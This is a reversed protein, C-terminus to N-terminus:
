EEPRWVKRLAEVADSIEPLTKADLVANIADVIDSSAEVMRRGEPVERLIWYRYKHRGDSLAPNTAACEFWEGSNPKRFEGTRAYRM